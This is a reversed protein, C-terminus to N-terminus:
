FILSFHSGSCSLLLVLSLLDFDSFFSGPNAGWDPFSGKDFIIQSFSHVFNANPFAALEYIYL